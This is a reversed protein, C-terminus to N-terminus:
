AHGIRPDLLAYLLDAIMNMLIVVVAILLFAGQALPYDSASVARVLERGLGPWSFVTEVVVNGQLQYGVAIAFSTMIPLLANRAAHRVVVTWSSLGKIRAMTVFDEKMVDLMNSRMLLLPLGQSYIALTLAPLALHALFDRSTYLAFYGDYSEGATRTGGAPFWGLWFSFVALLVMGLWFEPMARTTLVAPIAAQEVWNGRKWALYAGALIGFAYAVILSTFTLILTNPLLPFIIEAVPKRYTFSEGLNGTLLNGIYILYQQWLPKDLGFSAMLIEQQELTFNPDIYAAMPNGPMLRFMLFLITVVTWLVLLMQLVRSGIPKLTSM